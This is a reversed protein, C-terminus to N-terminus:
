CPRYRGGTETIEGGALAVELAAKLHTRDRSAVAHLMQRAALGEAGAKAVARVLVGAVRDVAAGAERRGSEESVARKGAFRLQHQEKRDAGEAVRRQAWQRVGDSVDMLIGALRWDATTVSLRGDLVGLIAAAKLRNLGRHGDLGDTEEGRVKRLQIQRLEAVIAQDVDLLRRRTGDVLAIASDPQNWRPPTWRLPGPWPPSQDPATPDATTCWYFRQPTGGASDALIAGALEPQIAVVATLRYDHAALKPIRRDRTANNFGLTEGSWAQRWVSWLTSGARSGLQELVEGEDVRLHLGHKSRRYEVTGKKAGEVTEYFSRIIGEGTGATIVETKYDDSRAPEDLLEQACDLASGKGAGSEGVIGAMVNLSGYRGVIAPILIRYDTAWSARALVAGLVADPSICRSRAAQRIHEFMPRASWFEEPLPDAGRTPPRDTNVAAAGGDPRPNPGSDTGPTLAPGLFDDWGGGPEPRGTLARAAAVRDGNHEYAAIVDMRDYSPAPGAGNYPEFPTSSSFVILRDTGKSNTTAGHGGRPDKGPRTWYDESGVSHHHAWGYRGLIEAWPRGNLEACLADMWSAGDNAVLRLPPRDAATPDPESPKGIHFAAALSHLAAREGATITAVTGPGGAVRVWSGGNPHTDGGSPAIVTFGGQGRTEILTQYEGPRDPDPRTALKKNGAKAGEPPVWRMKLHIGDSPTTESWGGCIRNLLPGLGNDDCSQAFREFMGEAVAAGEFELMELGGSVAGCVVGLGDRDTHFMAETTDRDPRAAQFKKWIGLPRKGPQAPVVCLGADWAELAAARVSQPLQPVTRNPIFQPAAEDATEAGGGEESPPRHADPTSM